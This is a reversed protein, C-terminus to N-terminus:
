RGCSSHTEPGKFASTYQVHGNTCYTEIWAYQYTVTCTRTFLGLFGGYQHTYTYLDSFGVCASGGNNEGDCSSIKCKVAFAVTCCVILVLVLLLCVVKKM